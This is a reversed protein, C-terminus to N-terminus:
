AQAAEQRAVKRVVSGLPQGQRVVSGLPQGEVGPQRALTPEFRIISHIALSVTRKMICLCAPSCGRNPLAYAAQHRMNAADALPQQWAEMGGM